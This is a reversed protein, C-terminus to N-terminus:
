YMIHKLNEAVLKSKRTILKELTNRTLRPEDPYMRTVVTVYM